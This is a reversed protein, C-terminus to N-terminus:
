EDANLYGDYLYRIARTQDRDQDTLDQDQDSGSNSHWALRASSGMTGEMEKEVAAGHVGATVARQRGSCRQQRIGARRRTRPPSRGGRTMQRTRTHWTV